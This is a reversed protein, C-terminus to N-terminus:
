YDCEIPYWIESQIDNGPVLYTNYDQHVFKSYKDYVRYSTMAILKNQSNFVPGGSYGPILCPKIIVVDAKNMLNSSSVNKQIGIIEGIGSKLEGQNNGIFTIQDKVRLNNSNETFELAKLKAGLLKKDDLHIKIIALDQRDSEFLVKGDAEYLDSIKIKFHWKARNSKLDRVIHKNTCIYAKRRMENVRVIFGTGIFDAGNADKCDIRVVSNKTSKLTHEVTSWKGLNKENNM